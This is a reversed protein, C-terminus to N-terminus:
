NHIAQYVDAVESFFNIESAQIKSDNNNGKIWTEAHSSVDSKTKIVQKDDWM